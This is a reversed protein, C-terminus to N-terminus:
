VISERIVRFKVEADAQSSFKHIESLLTTSAKLKHYSNEMITDLIETKLGSRLCWRVYDLCANRLDNLEFQEAACYLGAVSELAIDATGCHVFEILKKFVEPSYKKVPIVLPGPLLTTRQHELILQYFIKSRTGLIAKVGHIPVKNCGVHFTVDCLEPMSLIYKLNDCLSKTSKFRIVESRYKRKDKSKTFKAMKRTGRVDSSSEYGSSIGESDSTPSNLEENNLLPLRSDNM